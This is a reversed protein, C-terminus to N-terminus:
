RARRTPADAIAGSSSVLHSDVFSRSFRKSACSRPLTRWFHGGAGNVGRDEDVVVRPRLELARQSRNGILQGPLWPFPDDDVVRRHVVAGRGNVGEGRM